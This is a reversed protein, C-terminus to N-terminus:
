IKLQSTPDIIKQAERNFKKIKAKTEKIALVAANMRDEAWNTFKETKFKLYNNDRGSLTKLLAVLYTEGAKIVM